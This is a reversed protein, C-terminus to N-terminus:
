ISIIFFIQELFNTNQEKHLLLESTFGLSFNYVCPNRKPNEEVGRGWVLLLSNQPIFEATGAPGSLHKPDKGSFQFRHNRIWQKLVNGPIRTQQSNGPLWTVWGMTHGYAACCPARATRPLSDWGRGPFGAAALGEEGSSALCIICNSQVRPGEAKNRLVPTTREAAIRSKRLRKFYCM